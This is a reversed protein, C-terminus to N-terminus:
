TVRLLREQSSSSYIVTQLSRRIICVYILYVIIFGAIFGIGGGVAAGKALWLLDESIGVIAVCLGVGAGGLTVVCIVFAFMCALGAMEWRSIVQARGSIL